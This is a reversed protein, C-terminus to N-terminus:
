TETHIQYHYLTCNGGSSLFKLYGYLLMNGLPVDVFQRRIVQIACSLDFVEKCTGLGVEPKCPYANVQNEERCLSLDTQGYGLWALGLGAM